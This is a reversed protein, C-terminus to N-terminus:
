VESTSGLGGTPSPNASRVFSSPISTDNTFVGVHAIVLFKFYPSLRVSQREVSM